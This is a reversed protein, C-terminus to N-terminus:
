VPLSITKCIMVNLLSPCKLCHGLKKCKQVDMQHLDFMLTYNHITVTHSDCPPATVQDM